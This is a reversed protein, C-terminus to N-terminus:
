EASSDSISLNDSVSSSDEEEESDLDEVKEFENMEKKLKDIIPDVHTCVKSIADRGEETELIEFQKHLREKVDNLTTTNTYLRAVAGKIRGCM